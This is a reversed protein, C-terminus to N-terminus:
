KAWDTVFGTFSKSDAAPRIFFPSFFEPVDDFFYYGAAGNLMAEPWHQKQIGYDFNSNHFSGPEWGRSRAINCLTYTGMVMVPGKPDIEPELTHIFPVVKVTTYSINLRELASLLREYGEESFMNSQIIWHM